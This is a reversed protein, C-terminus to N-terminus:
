SAAQDLLETAGFPFPEEEEEEEGSWTASLEADSVDETFGNLEAWGWRCGGWWGGLAEQLAVEYFDFLLLALLFPTSGCM